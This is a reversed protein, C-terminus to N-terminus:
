VVVIEDKKQDIVYLYEYGSGGFIVVGHNFMPNKEFPKCMKPNHMLLDFTDALKDALKKYTQPSAKYFYLADNITEIVDPTYRLQPM